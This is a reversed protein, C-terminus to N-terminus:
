AADGSITLQDGTVSWTGTVTKFKLHGSTMAYTHDSKFEWEVKDTASTQIEIVLKGTQKAGEPTFFQKASVEHWKGIIPLQAACLTFSSLAFTICTIISAKVTSSIFASKIKM